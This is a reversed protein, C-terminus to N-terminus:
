EGMMMQLLMPLMMASQLEEMGGKLGGGKTLNEWINSFGPANKSFKTAFGKKRLVNDLFRKSAPGKSTLVDMNPDLSYQKATKAQADQFTKAYTERGTKWQEFLSGEDGGLIKSAMFGTAGAGLAGRLVDGRSMQLDEAEEKYAKMPRKLFNKSWRDGEVGSLLGKLAQRQQNGQIGATIGKTLGVGLPGGFISALLNIGQFLGKNKKSDKRAKAQAAELDAEFEEELKGMQVATKSKSQEGRFRSEQLLDRLSSQTGAIQYPSYAM